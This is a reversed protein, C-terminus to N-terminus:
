GAAQARMFSHLHDTLKMIDRCYISPSRFGREPHYRHPLYGGGCERRLRCSRCEEALQTGGSQRLAVLENEFVAQVEHEVVNLGTVWAGPRAAKLSDVGEYEGDVNVVLLNVPEEGLSELSGSGGLSRTLLEEFYRIPIQPAHLMWDDFVRILWDAYPAAEDDSLDYPPAAWTKHPLLFDVLPPAWSALYRWVAIPDSHPDIVCLLGSFQPHGSLLSLARELGAGSGRGSHDVRLRDAIAPPGDCSVGVDIQWLEVLQLWDENLLLGNTQVGFLIEARDAVGAKIAELLAKFRRPGVLLPEGGHLMISVQGLHNAAAHAGIREGTQRATEVSMHPPRSRWSQDHAFFEYCYTCALNCRAAVKVIFSEIAVPVRAPVIPLPRSIPANSV